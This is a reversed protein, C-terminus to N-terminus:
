REWLWNDGMGNHHNIHTGNYGESSLPYKARYQHVIPHQTNMWNYDRYCEVIEPNFSEEIGITAFLVPYLIDYNSLRKESLALDNLLNTNNLLNTYAVKFSESHFIAPTAGWTDIPIGGNQKLVNQLDQSLGNNIRTGLLKQHYPNTLKGRVIIDPEMVLLYDKQGYEIARNTRDLFTLISQKIKEQMVDSKYDDSIKPIFGRSDYELNCKINNYEKELFSYDSGGDSVLYIYCDPYVSKLTSISYSVAKVETYCTYFVSFNM